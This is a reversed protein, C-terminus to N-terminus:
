GSCHGSCVIQVVETVAGSSDAVVSFLFALQQQLDLGVSLFGGWPGLIERKGVLAIIAHHCHQGHVAHRLGGGTSHYSAAYHVGM